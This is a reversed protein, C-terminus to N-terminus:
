DWSECSVIAEIVQQRKTTSFIGAFSQFQVAASAGGFDSDVHIWRGADM